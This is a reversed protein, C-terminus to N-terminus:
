SVLFAMYVAMPAVWTFIDIVGKRTTQGYRKPHLIFEQLCLAAIATALLVYLAVESGLLQHAIITLSAMLVISGFLHWTGRYITLRYSTQGLGHIKIGKHLVQEYARRGRVWKGEIEQRFPYLKDPITEVWYHFSILFQKMYIDLYGYYLLNFLPVV